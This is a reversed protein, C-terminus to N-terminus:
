RNLLNIIVERDAASAYTITDPYGHSASGPMQDKTGLGAYATRVRNLYDKPHVDFGLVQGLISKNQAQLQNLIVVLEAEQPDDDTFDVDAATWEDLRAFNSFGDYTLFDGPCLNGVVSAYTSVATPVTRYHYFTIDDGATHDTPAAGGGSIYFWIVGVEADWFYDGDQRLGSIGSRQSTLLTPSAAVALPTRLNNSACPAYGTAYGVVDTNTEDDYRDMQTQFTALSGWVGDAAVGDLDTLVFSDAYAPMNSSAVDSPVHPLRLVWDCVIPVRDQMKYNHFRFSAPNDLDLGASAWYNMSAVGVPFSVFADLTAGVDLLGMQQLQLTLATKDYTKAATVFTGTGLDIIRNTVDLATYELVDDGGAADAWNLRVGAPLLGGLQGLTCAEAVIKGSSVVFYDEDRVDYRSIFGMAVNVTGSSVPLWPCVKSPFHPRISESHEVNPTLNGVHDWQKHTGSYNDVAM